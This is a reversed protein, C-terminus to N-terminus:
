RIYMSGPPLPEMLIRDPTVNGTPADDNNLGPTVVSERIDGASIEAPMNMKPLPPPTARVTMNDSVTPSVADGLTVIVRRPMQVKQTPAEQIATFQVNTRPLAIDTMTPPAMCWVTGDRGYRYGTDFLGRMAKQDFSMSNTPLVYDQPIGTLRFNARAYQTLIFMQALEGEMKAQLVTNLSEGTIALLERETHTAVQRLKGAVVVYVSMGNGEPPQEGNPGIGLMSPQLFACATIGGDVHLETFQRGDVEIDIPVPPLLGPVSCSALLVKKFLERSEPTDRSAIAGLDWVVLRKTDLNTTGVYLRRGQRHAEAIRGLVETTIGAAIQQELPISSVLSDLWLFRPRFINDQRMSTYVRELETDYESGLFAYPAILAGTSVGTVVDFQPRVGSATWGKLVGAGYAGNMGGGSLVLVNRPVSVAPAPSANAAVSQNSEVLRTAPM